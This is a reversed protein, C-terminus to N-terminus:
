VRLIVRRLLANEPKKLILVQLPSAIKFVVDGFLNAEEYYEAKNPKMVLFVPISVEDIVRTNLDTFYGFLIHPQPEDKQLHRKIRDLQIESMSLGLEQCIEKASVNKLLYRANKKM